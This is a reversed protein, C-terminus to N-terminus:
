FVYVKGDHAFIRLPHFGGAVPQKLRGDTTGLELTGENTEMLYHRAGPDAWLGKAPRTWGLFHAEGPTLWAAWQGEDNLYALSSPKQPVFTLKGETDLITASDSFGYLYLRSGTSDRGVQSAWGQKVKSRKLFETLEFRSYRFFGPVPVPPGVCAGAGMVLLCIWVACTASPLGSGECTRHRLM